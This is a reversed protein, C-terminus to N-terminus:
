FFAKFAKERRDIVRASKKVTDSSAQIKGAGYSKEDFTLGDICM